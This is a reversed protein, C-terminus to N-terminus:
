LARHMIVETAGPHELSPVERARSFGAKEFARCSAANRVDPDAVVCKADPYLDTILETVFRDVVRTGIGRGVLDLEGLFVDLGVADAFAVRAADEPSDDVRYAQVVGAPRGGVLVMTVSTRSDGDICPGWEAEVADLDPPDGWWQRVHPRARWMCVLPFDDRRLPRFTISARQPADNM